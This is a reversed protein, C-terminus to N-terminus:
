TAGLDDDNLGWVALMGLHRSVSTYNENSLLGCDLTILRQSQRPQTHICVRHFDAQTRIFIIAGSVSLILMLQSQVACRRGAGKMHRMHCFLATSEVTDINYCRLTGPRATELLRLGSSANCQLSCM